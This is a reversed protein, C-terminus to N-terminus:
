WGVKMWDRIDEASLEFNKNWKISLIQISIIM